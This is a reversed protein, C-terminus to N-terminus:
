NNTLKPAILPRRSSIGNTKGNMINTSSGSFVFYSTYIVIVHLFMVKNRTYHSKIFPTPIHKATSQTNSLHENEFHNKYKEQEDIHYLRQLRYIDDQEAHSSQILVIFQIDM